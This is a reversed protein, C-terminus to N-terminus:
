AVREPKMGVPFLTVPCGSEAVFRVPRKTVRTREVAQELSGAFEVVNAAVPCLGDPQAAIAKAHALLDVPTM